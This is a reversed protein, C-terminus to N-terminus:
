LSGTAFVMAVGLKKRLSMQLKWVMPVPLILLGFDTLINCIGQINLTNYSKPNCKTRPDLQLFVDWSAKIPRCAFIMLLFSIISWIVVILRLLWAAIRFTRDVRFIRFLPPLLSLKAYM